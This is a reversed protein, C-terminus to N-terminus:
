SVERCALEIALNLDKPDATEQRTKVLYAKVANEVFVRKHEGLSRTAEARKVQAQVMPYWPQSVIHIYLGLEDALYRKALWRVCERVYTRLHGWTIHTPRESVTTSM